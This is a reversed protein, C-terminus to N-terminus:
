LNARYSNFVDERKALAKADPTASYLSHDVDNMGFMVFVRDPRLPEVDWDFRRVGGSAVDGSVGVGMVVDRSGPHRLAKFLQVYGLYRGGQTISDGLFAIREAKNSVATGASATFLLVTGAVLFALMKITKM